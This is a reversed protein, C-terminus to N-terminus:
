ASPRLRSVLTSPDAVNRTGSSTATVHHLGEMPFDAPRAHQLLEDARRSATATYKKLQPGTLTGKIRGALERSMTGGPGGMLSWSGGHPVVLSGTRRVADLAAQPVAALKRLEDHFARLTYIDMM